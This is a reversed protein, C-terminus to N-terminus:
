ISGTYGYIFSINYWKENHLVRGTCAIKKGQLYEIFSDKTFATDSKTYLELDAMSSNPGAKVQIHHRYLTISGGGAEKSDIMRRM